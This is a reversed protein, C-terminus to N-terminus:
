GLEKVGGGERAVGMGRVLHARKVRESAKGSGDLAWIGVM